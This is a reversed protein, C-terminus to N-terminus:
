AKTAKAFAELAAKADDSLTEPLMIMLEAYLDGRETGKSVAGKGRLRLRKGSSSLPPITLSVNTGELTPVDVKGGLVAVDLAVQVEVDVDQPADARRRFRAHPREHVEVLLDGAPGRASPHGQGALRITKGSGIGAPIKVKLSRHGDVSITKETGLAAEPLDIDLRAQIDEGKQPAQQQTRGGQNFMNGFMDGFGGQAGSQTARPRRGQQGGFQAFLEDLDIGGMDPQGGGGPFGGSSRGAFPNKRMADYERRQKDDSLVEYAETIEKFKNTKAKDGGNVDPHLKKALKRYAKKLEDATATEPVGITAYHNKPAAM